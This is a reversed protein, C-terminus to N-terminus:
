LGSNVKIVDLRLRESTSLEGDEGCVASGSRGRAKVKYLAEDAAKYLSNFHRAHEPYLAAGISITVTLREAGYLVPQSLAQLLRAAIERAHSEADDGCILVAFEDGGLRAVADGGRVHERLRKAIVQLMLDGADHGYRDNIPKFHDLDILLLAVSQAHREANALASECREILYRRNPLETLPDHFAAHELAQERLSLRANASALEATRQAVANQLEDASAQMQSLRASKERDAQEMAASKEQKLMQIRYALAFSFLIAEAAIALPFLYATSEGPQIVGAARLLLVVFSLLVTGYGLLYFLAPTFGQRWRIIACLLLTPVTVIPILGIVMGSASRYGALNMALAVLYLACCGNLIQHPIRLSHRTYLLEQAFRLMGLSVLIPLSIRDLWVPVPSGPWLYQAGHGSMSAIFVLSAAMTLVYWFYAPQRLAILIFLNYLLLALIMGYIMGLILHEHKAQHELDHLQWARLPFSNGAPDFTRLYVTLPQEGLEPLRFVARRYDHDRGEAYPVREGAQRALWQGQEAPLFVQLDLLTVSGVELWWEPPADASRQLTVKIWWPNPSQGVSTRGAAPQFRAQVDPANLDAINLQGGTDELLEIDANLVQGSSDATLVLAHSQGTLCLLSLLLFLSPVLRQVAYM